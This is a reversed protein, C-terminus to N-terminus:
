SASAARFTWRPSSSLTVPYEAAAPARRGLELRVADLVDEAGAPVGVDRQQVREAAARDLEDDGAVLLRGRVGGVPVGPGRPLGPTSSSCTPGPIIFATVPTAVAASSETGSTAIAPSM